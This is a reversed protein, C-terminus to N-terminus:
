LARFYQASPLLTFGQREYLRRAPAHGPDGGTAILAVRMGHDRLWAAAHETLAGGVGRDQASPDVALMTIAGLKREDDVIAAAAFGVVEADREAVWARQDRLTRRVERAQHERWDHGHLLVALEDGLVANVSEFVPAWARLALAVVAEEDQASCERIM